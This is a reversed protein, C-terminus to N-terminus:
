VNRVAHAINFAAIWLVIGWTYDGIPRMLNWSPSSYWTDYLYSTSANFAIYVISSLWIAVTTANEANDFESMCLFLAILVNYVLTAITIGTTKAYNGLSTKIDSYIGWRLNISIWTGDVVLLFALVVGFVTWDACNSDLVLLQTM